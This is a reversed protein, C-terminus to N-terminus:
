PSGQDCREREKWVRVLQERLEEKSGDNHLVVQARRVKEALPLQAALRREVAEPTLGDRRALRSRQLVPSATVVWIEDVTSDMGMEFLLPHDLIVVSEGDAALKALEGAVAARIAPHTLAELRKLLRPDTFVIRGLLKRDITGDAALVGPGFHELVLQYNPYGPLLLRHAWADVDIVPIGMERLFEAATSKGTAIGGTLGIIRM